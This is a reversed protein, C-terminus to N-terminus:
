GGSVHCRLFHSILRLRVRPLRKHPGFGFPWRVLSRIFLWWARGMAGRKAAIWSASLGHYAQARRKTAYGHLVGEAAYAKDLVRFVQPLFTRDDMSLSGLAERYRCMPLDVAVVPEQAAVRMWLDYDEPGRFQEDFGGVRQLTERRVLVTSTAVPNAILFDSLRLFRWSPDTDAREVAREAGADPSPESGDLWADYDVTRGCFMAVEAMKESMAMQSSLRCPMWVDDADLFAIWEGHAAAIGGNRAAAPGGNDSLPILRCAMPQAAEGHALGVIRGHVWAQVTAVTGDTSADDVVIIELDRWSQAAVSDLAEVITSEANFAPVIVSVRSAVQDARRDMDSLGSGDPSGSKESRGVGM